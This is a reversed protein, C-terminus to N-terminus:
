SNAMIAEPTAVNRQYENATRVKERTDEDKKEDKNKKIAATVNAEIAGQILEGERKELLDSLDSSSDSEIGGISKSSRGSKKRNGSRASNAKREDIDGYSDRESRDFDDRSSQHGLNKTPKNKKRKGFNGELTTAM